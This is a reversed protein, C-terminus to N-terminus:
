SVNRFRKSVAPLFLSSSLFLPSTIELRSFRAILRRLVISRSLQMLMLMALWGRTQTYVLHCVNIVCSKVIGLLFVLLGLLAQNGGACRGDGVSIGGGIVGTGGEEGEDGGLM